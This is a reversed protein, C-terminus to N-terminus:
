RGTAAKPPVRSICFNSVGLPAKTFSGARYPWVRWVYCAGRALRATRFRTTRPFASKVKRLTVATAAATSSATRVRFLQLNYLTTGSPGPNWRLVPRLVRLTAARRPRLRTTNRAPLKVVTRPLATPPAAAPPAPPGPPAVAVTAAPTVAVPLAAVPSVNGAVDRQTVLVEYGGPPLGAISAAATTTDVPGQVQVDAAEDDDKEDDDDDDDNGIGPVVVSWTFVAGKEGGTWAVSLTEGATISAPGSLVVPKPAKTDVVFTRVARENQPPDPGPGGPGPLAPNKNVQVVTLTHPGDKLRRLTVQFPSEAVIAQRGGSSQWFWYAGSAGGTVVYTPPTNWVDGNAGSITPTAAVAAPACALTAALAGVVGLRIGSWRM